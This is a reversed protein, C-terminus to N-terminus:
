QQGDAPPNDARHGDAFAAVVNARTMFILLLIPYILGFCGGISGGITGGIAGAAEPGTKQRAQELMPQVLFFYNVVMGVIGMVIAYIGYLISLTRAWPRVKLLGIGAALLAVCVVAGLVLSLKLWTAYAPSSQIIQVVPNNTNAQPLFLFVSVFMGIVGFVAFVINLIGFVTVSTPRQM